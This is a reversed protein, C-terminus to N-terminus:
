AEEDIGFLEDLIQETFEEATLIGGDSEESDDTEEAQSQTAGGAPPGGGRMGQPRGGGQPGGMGMMGGPKGGGPADGPMGGGQRQQMAQLVADSDVGNDELVQTVTDQVQQRNPMQGSAMQAEFAASLDEQIKAKTQSDVNASDLAQGLNEKMRQGKGEVARGGETHNGARAGQINTPRMPQGTGSVANM